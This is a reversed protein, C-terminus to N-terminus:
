QTNNWKIGLDEVQNPSSQTFTVLFYCTSSFKQVWNHKQKELREPNDFFTYM